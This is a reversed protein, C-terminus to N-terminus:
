DEKTVFLFCTVLEFVDFAMRVVTSLCLIHPSKVSYTYVELKIDSVDENIKCNVHFVFYSLANTGNNPQGCRPWLECFPTIASIGTFVRQGGLVTTLYITNM